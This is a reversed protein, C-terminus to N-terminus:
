DDTSITEMMGIYQPGLTQWTYRQNVFSIREQTAVENTTNLQQRIVNALEDTSSM